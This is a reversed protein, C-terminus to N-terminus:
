CNIQSIENGLIPFSKSFQFYFFLFIPTSKPFPAIFCHALLVIQFDPLLRVLKSSLVILPNSSSVIQFNKNLQM